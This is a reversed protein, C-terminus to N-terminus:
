ARKLLVMKKVVKDMTRGHAVYAIVPVNKDYCARCGNCRGGHQYAECVKVGSPASDYSPIIVSGHHSEFEGTVSDSSPRVMVNPLSKMKSIVEDYKKFKYMRTPLWHRVNPTRVMVDLIKEALRISYMDGSDFWRFFEEGSIAAVMDDAWGDRTWDERNFDRVQRVNKFRYNGGAAYCGQCAPVLTAGDGTGAGASRVLSGPCTERANLSWSKIGDLKSTASLKM